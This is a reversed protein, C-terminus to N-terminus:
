KWWTGALDKHVTTPPHPARVCELVRDYGQVSIQGCQEVVAENHDMGVHYGQCAEFWDDQSDFDLGNIAAYTRAVGATNFTTMPQEEPMGTCDAVGGAAVHLGPM